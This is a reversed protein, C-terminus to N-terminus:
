HKTGNKTARMENVIRKASSTCTLYFAKAYPIAFRPWWLTGGHRQSFLRWEQVPLGRIDLMKELRDAQYTPDFWAERMPNPECTGIFDGSSWVEIGAKNARLGYDFDGLIHRLDVEINGLAEVTESSILVCNGHMTDCRVPTGEPPVINFRFARLGSKAKLGGYTVEGTQSCRTSGVVIGPHHGASELKRQCVLLQNLAGPDLTTDDNLWLYAGCDSAMAAEWAGRMGGGWFASGDGAIITTEPFEERVAEATGDTSGDDFLFVNLKTPTDFAQETLARLCAITKQRRNHCALIVGIHLAQGHSSASAM